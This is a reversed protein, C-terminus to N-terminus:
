KLRTGNAVSADIAVITPKGDANTAMMTMGHSEVGMLARPALNFAFVTKVGILQEPTFEKKIGACIQRVGFEGFDVQMKYLKDSKPLEEVAIIQGVRLEVKMLDDFTITATALAPATSQAAAPPTNNNQESNNMNTKTSETEYKVFLPEQATLSFNTAWPARLQTIYDVGKTVHALGLAARVRDMSAPMLPWALVSVAELAHLAAAIITAFRDRDQKIIKWPEHAHLYANTQHVFHWVHAYARHFFYSKMEMQYSDLCRQLGDWLKIEAETWAYPANFAPMEYRLALSIVRNLLNGLADALEANCKEELDEFSFSSDQTVALHRVLYYRLSDLQYRQLLEHPDIANGLSKSMKQNNVTIWGHVLLTKPLPLGSAMLFAPWYIAHFRVIDKGLVHVDAPWCRAFEDERGPQLYGIATLYNNLADAWVYTVHAPDGPFPIGWTVTKRSISLDKLGGHVFSIVENLRESPTVFEPHEKYFALLKDQYASLRFFYCEESVWVAPKGSHPCLPRGEADKNGLDKDTLFMEASTSYWGEYASKYIDGKRYLEEIWRQVAQTHYEDTTRIFHNYQLDYEAWLNKFAPIFSDVFSQPDKGAAAAAEAVKQGHEDTGTVFCTTKGEIQQSRAIVDALLTSYLSGLHPKANVYYIPTTVYFTHPPTSM